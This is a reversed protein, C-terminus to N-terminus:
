HLVILQLCVKDRLELLTQMTCLGMAMSYAICMFFGPAAFDRVGFYDGKIYEGYIFEQIEVPLKVSKSTMGCSKAVDTMTDILAEQFSISITATMFKDSYDGSFHIRGQDAVENTVFKQNRPKIFFDKELFSRSFEPKFHVYGWITRNRVGERAEKVSRYERRFDVIKQNVNKLFMDPIYPVRLRDFKGLFLNL